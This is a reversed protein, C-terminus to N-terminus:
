LDVNLCHRMVYSIEENPWYNATKTPQENLGLSEIFIDFITLGTRNSSLAMGIVFVCYQRGPGGRSILVCNLSADCEQM